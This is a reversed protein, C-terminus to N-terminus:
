SKEDTNGGIISGVAEKLDELETFLEVMDCSKVVVSEGQEIKEYLLGKVLLEIRRPYKTIMRAATEYNEQIEELFAKVTPYDLNKSIDMLSNLEM